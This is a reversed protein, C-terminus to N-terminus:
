SPEGAPEDDMRCATILGLMAWRSFWGSVTTGDIEAISCLELVRGLPNGAMLLTLAAGEELTLLDLKIELGARRVLVHEAKREAPGTWATDADGDQTRRRWLDLIPWRSSVVAIAPQFSLVAREWQEPTWAALAAPALPTEQPAHFAEAIRWELEALDPLFPLRRTSPEGRLFRHFGAGADNLNYSTPRRARVFRATMRSFEENGVFSRVATYSDALAEDIRAPYGGAYVGLAVDPSVPRDDAVIAAFAERERASALRRPELIWAAMLQQLALLRALKKAEPQEDEDPELLQM